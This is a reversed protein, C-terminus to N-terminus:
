LVNYQLTAWLFKSFKVPKGNIKLEVEVLAGPEASANIDSKLEPWMIGSLLHFVDSREQCEKRLDILEVGPVLTLKSPHMWTEGLSCRVKIADFSGLASDLSTVLVNKGHYPNVKYDPDMSLLDEPQLDVRVVDGVTFSLPKHEAVVNDHTGYDEIVAFYTSPYEKVLADFEKLAEGRTFMQADPYESHWRRAMGLLWVDHGGFGVPVHKVIVHNNKM